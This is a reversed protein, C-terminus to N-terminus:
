LKKPAPPLPQWHTIIDELLHDFYKRDDAYFTTIKIETNGMGYRLLVLYNDSKDPLRDKVSIWERQRKLEDIEKELEIMREQFEGAVM